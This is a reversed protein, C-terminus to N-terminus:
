KGGGQQALGRSSEPCIAGGDLHKLVELRLEGIEEELLHAEALSWLALLQDTDRKKSSLARELEGVLEAVDHPSHFQAQRAAVFRGAASPLSAPDEESVERSESIQAAAVIFEASVTTGASRLQAIEREVRGPPSSENRSCSTM